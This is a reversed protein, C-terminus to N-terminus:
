KEENTKQAAAIRANIEKSAQIVNRVGAAMGLVSMVLIFIPSTKFVRDIGWGIGAGVILAAILETSFRLAVNLSTPPAQVKRADDRQRVEDLRAGLDRLEDQDPGDKPM